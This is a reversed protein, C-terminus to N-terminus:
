RQVIINDSGTISVFHIGCVQYSTALERQEDIDVTILDLTRGSGTRTPEPSDATLEELIPSLMRCPGCWSSLTLKSQSNM